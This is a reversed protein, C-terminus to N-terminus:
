AYDKSRVCIHGRKLLISEYLLSGLSFYLTAWLPRHGTENLPYRCLSLEKRGIPMSTSWERARSAGRRSSMCVSSLLEDLGVKLSTQFFTMWCGEVCSQWWEWVCLWFTVPLICVCVCVCLCMCVCPSAGIVDVSGWRVWSERVVKLHALLIWGRNERGKEKREERRRGKRGQTTNKSSRTSNWFSYSNGLQVWCHFTKAITNGPLTRGLILLGNGKLPVCFRAWPSVLQSGWRWVSHEARVFASARERERERARERERERERERVCVCVCARARLTYLSRCGQLVPDPMYIARSVM